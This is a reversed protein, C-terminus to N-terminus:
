EPDEDHRGIKQVAQWSSERLRKLFDIDEQTQPDCNGYRMCCIRPQVILFTVSPTWDEGDDDKNGRAIATEAEEITSYTGHVGSTSFLAFNMEDAGDPFFARLASMGDADRCSFHNYHAGSKHHTSRWPGSNAAEFMPGGVSMVSM